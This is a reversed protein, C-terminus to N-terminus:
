AFAFRSVKVKTLVATNGVTANGVHKIEVTGNVITFVVETGLVAGHLNSSDTDAILVADGSTQKYLGSKKLYGSGGDGNICSEVEILAM